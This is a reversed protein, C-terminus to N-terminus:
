SNVLRWGFEALYDDFLELFMSPVSINVAACLHHHGPV